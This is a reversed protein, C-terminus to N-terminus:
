FDFGMYSLFDHTRSVKLNLANHPEQATVGVQLEAADNMGEPVYTPPLMNLLLVDSKANITQTPDSHGMGSSIYPYAATM